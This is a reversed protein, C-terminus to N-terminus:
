KSKLLIAKVKEVIENVPHNAKVFYDVVGLQLAKKIHDDDALNTIAIVPILKTDNDKKIEKLVEFGDIKPLMLDLLIIDPNFNKTISIAKEGNEAIQVNFNAKKLKEELVKALIEEDEVILAKMVILINKDM